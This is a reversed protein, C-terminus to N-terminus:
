NELAKIERPNHPNSQQKNVSYNNFSKRILLYMVSTEKNQNPGRQKGEFKKDLYLKGVRFNNQLEWRLPPLLSHDRKTTSRILIAFDHGARSQWHNAPIGGEKTPTFFHPTHNTLM